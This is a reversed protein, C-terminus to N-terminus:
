AVAMADGSGPPMESRRWLQPWAPDKVWQALGPIWGADEPLSQRTRLGSLWLPFEQFNVRQLHVIRYNKM